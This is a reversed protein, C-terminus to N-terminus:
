GNKLNFRDKKFFIEEAVDMPVFNVVSYGKLEDYEPIVFEKPDILGKHNLRFIFDGWITQKTNGKYEYFVKTNPHVQKFNMVFIEPIGNELFLTFFEGEFAMTKSTFYYTYTNGLHTTINAKEHDIKLETVIGNDVFTLENDKSWYCFEKKILILGKEVERKSLYSVGQQKQFAILNQIFTKQSTGINTRFLIKVKQITM